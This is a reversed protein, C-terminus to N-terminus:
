LVVVKACVKELNVKMFEMTITFPETATFLAEESSGRISLNQTQGITHDKGTSFGMKLNVTLNIVVLSPFCVLEKFLMPLCKDKTFADFM